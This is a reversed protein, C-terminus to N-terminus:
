GGKPLILTCDQAPIQSRGGTHIKVQVELSGKPKFLPNGNHPNPQYRPTNGSSLILAIRHGKAFRHAHSPFTIEISHVKAPDLKKRRSGVLSARQATEAMLIYRGKEDVDCLLAVFDVDVRDCEFRCAVRARGVLDVPEKLVDTKWILVDKRDLLPNQSQPGHPLPPLNRGGLTPAGNKPDHRYSRTGPDDVGDTM